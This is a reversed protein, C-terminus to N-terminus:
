PTRALRYVRSVLRIARNEPVEVPHPYRLQVISYLALKLCPDACLAYPKVIIEVRTVEHATRVVRGARMKHPMEARAQSKVDRGINEDTRLAM